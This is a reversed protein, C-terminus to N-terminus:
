VLMNVSRGDFFTQREYASAYASHRQPPISTPGSAESGPRDFDGFQQRSGNDGHLQQEFPQGQHQDTLMVDLRKLNVGSQQLTSVIQPLAQEIQSKTQLRDVQLMGVGDQVAFRRLQNSGTVKRRECYRDGVRNFRWVPVMLENDGKYLIGAAWRENLGEVFVPVRKRSIEVDRM